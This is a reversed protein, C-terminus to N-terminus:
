ENKSLLPCEDKMHGSKECRFCLGAARLRKIKEPDLGPIRTPGAGGRPKRLNQFKGAVSSSSSARGASQLANLKAEMAAFKELMALMAPSDKLNATPPEVDEREDDDQTLGEINSLDMASSDYVSSSASSSSGYGRGGHPMATRGFNHMAEISVAADIADFLTKPHKEWIKAAIVPLLGHTFYHVQDADGMDLVPTLANQFAGVYQNVSQGPRQRLRSLKQRAAMAANVPRFREHLRTEFEVWTTVPSSQYSWWHSAAGSFHAVAFRIKAADDPFMAAGYYDFQQKQERLWDDVVFGMNGGFTSPSKIKPLDPMRVRVQADPVGGAAQQAAAMAQAQQQLQQQQQQVMAYLQQMESRMQHVDPMSLSARPSAQPSASPDHLQSM